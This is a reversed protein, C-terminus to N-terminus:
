APDRHGREQVLFISVQAERETQSLEWPLSLAFPPEGGASKLGAPQQTPLPQLLGKQALQSRGEAVLVHAAKGSGHGPCVSPDLAAFLM